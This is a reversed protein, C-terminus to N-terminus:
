RNRSYNGKEKFYNNKFRDSTVASPWNGSFTNLENKILLLDEPLLGWIAMTDTQGDRTEM